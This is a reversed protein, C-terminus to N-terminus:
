LKTYYQKFKTVTRWCMSPPLASLNSYGADGAKEWRWPLEQVDLRISVAIDEDDTELEWLEPDGANRGILGFGYSIGNPRRVRLAVM